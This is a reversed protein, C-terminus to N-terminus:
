AATLLELGSELSQIHSASFGPTVNEVTFNENSNSIKLMARRIIEINRDIHGIDRDGVPQLARIVAIKEIAGRHQM